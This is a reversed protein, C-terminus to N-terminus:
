FRISGYFLSSDILDAVVGYNTKSVPDQIGTGPRRRTKRVTSTELVKKSKKAAAEPLKGKTPTSFMAIHLDDDHDIRAAAQLKALPQNFVNEEPERQISEPEISLPRNDPSSVAQLNRFNLLPKGVAYPNSTHMFPYNPGSKLNRIDPQYPPKTAGGEVDPRRKFLCRGTIRWLFMPIGQQHLEDACYSIIALVIFAEVVFALLGFRCSEIRYNVIMLFSSACGLILVAAGLHNTIMLEEYTKCTPNYLLDHASSFAVGM